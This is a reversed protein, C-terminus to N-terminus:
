WSKRYVEFCEEVYLERFHEKSKRFKYFSSGLNNQSYFDTKYLKSLHNYIKKANGKRQQSINTALGWCNIGEVMKSVAVCSVNEGDKKLLYFISSGEKFMKSIKSFLPSEFPNERSRGGSNVLWWERLDNESVVKSLGEGNSTNEFDTFSNCVSVIPTGYSFFKFEDISSLQSCEGKEIKIFFRHSKKKCFSSIEKLLSILLEKEVKDDYFRLFNFKPWDPGDWSYHSAFGYEKKSCFNLLFTDEAKEWLKFM